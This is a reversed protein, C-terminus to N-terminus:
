ILEYTHGGYVCVGDRKLARNIKIWCSTRYANEKGWLIPDIHAMSKALSDFEVGDVRTRIKGQKIKKDSKSSKEQEKWMREEQDRREKEEREKRVREEQDRREKEEKIRDEREQQTKRQARRKNSAAAKARLIDENNISDSPKANVKSQTNM